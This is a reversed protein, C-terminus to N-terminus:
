SQEGETDSPPTSEAPVVSRSRWRLLGLSLAFLLLGGVFFFLATDLLGGFTEAYVYLTQIVFGAIGIVGTARSGSRGGQLILAVTAAYVLGGAMIRLAMLMGDAGIRSVEPLFAIAILAAALSVGALRGTRDRLTRWVTLVLGAALAPLALAYYAEGPVSIARDPDIALTAVRDIAFQLGIGSLLALIGFWAAMIGGGPIQRDRATAGALAIAGLILTAGAQLGFDTIEVARDYRELAHGVWLALGLALLNLTVKSELRLALLATIAWLPLYSWLTGGVLPNFAELTAWLGGLLAALILVPRSPLALATLLAAGAWILVATNRFSTMNFTQATLMIAAGFLAAGLVALAHGLHDAGRDFARGAGLLSVWLASLIVAFRALKAMGEWNAAVFTIASM